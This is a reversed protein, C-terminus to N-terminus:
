GGTLRLRILHCFLQNGVGRWGGFNSGFPPITGSPCVAFNCYQRYGRQCHRGTFKIGSLTPVILVGPVFEKLTRGRSIRAIFMGVFPSWSVWWARYFVTWDSQWDSQQYTETWSSLEFFNQIYGGINQIFSDMIFLTPGVVLMFALFIAGPIM